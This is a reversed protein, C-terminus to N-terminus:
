IHMQFNHTKRYKMPNFLQGPNHIWTHDKTVILIPKESPFIM